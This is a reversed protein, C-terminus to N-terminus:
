YIIIRLSFITNCYIRVVPQNSPQMYRHYSTKPVTAKTLLRENIENSINNNIVCQYNAILDEIRWPYKQPNRELFASNQIEGERFGKTIWDFTSGRPAAGLSSYAKQTENQSLWITQVVIVIKETNRKIVARKLLM